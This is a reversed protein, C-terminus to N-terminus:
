DSNAAPLGLTKPPGFMRRLEEPTPPAADYAFAPAIPRPGNGQTQATARAGVGPRSKKYRRRTM